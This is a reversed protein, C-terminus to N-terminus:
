RTVGSGEEKLWRDFFAIIADQQELNVHHGEDWLRTVLRDDAGQSHWVRRMEAYAAEVGDVPFLKDRTGNFFLTPKPCAISAVHPYDLYRRLGPILMAYASGGKNQNNDLTMLHQTDSMWCVNASAAIRDSLAAAMWSRYAGMSWGFSGIRAADVCPLSALFEASYVDDATIFASWSAGMQMFNAALAQQTDYLEQRELRRPRGKRDVPQVTREGWLLADVALVVYGHRALRDGFFHGDFGGDVWNQADAVITDPCAFPRVCKEKGILFHAGHDHLMLVAPHRPTGGSNWHSATTAAQQPTSAEELAPAADAPVLLYAPVRSWANINFEIRLAVYGDREERALIRLNYGGEARPPVNQMSELVVARAQRRWRSFRRTPANGWAMPYTLQQKMQRYFIPMAKQLEYTATDIAEQTAADIPASPAIPIAAAPTAYCVNCVMALLLPLILRLFLPQPKM